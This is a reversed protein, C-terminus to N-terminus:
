KLLEDLRKIFEEEFHEIESYGTHKFRIIGKNDVLFTTPIIGNNCSKSFGSRLDIMFPLEYKSSKIYSIIAKLSDRKSEGCVILFVVRNDDIYRKQLKELAAFEEKCPGCWTAWFDIVLIKNQLEKSSIFNGNAKLLKFNKVLPQNSEDWGSEDFYKPLFKVGFFYIFTLYLIVLLSSLVFKRNSFYRRVYVGVLASLVAILFIFFLHIVGNLAGMLLICYPATIFVARLAPHFKTEEHRIFGITSVILALSIVGIKLDFFSILYFSIILSLVGLIVDILINKNGPSM